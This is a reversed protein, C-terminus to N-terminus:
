GETERAFEALNLLAIEQVGIKQQSLNKFDPLDKTTIKRVTVASLFPLSKKQGLNKLAEGFLGLQASGGCLLIKGPLGNGSIKELIIEAGALWLEMGQKFSKEIKRHQTPNKTKGHSYAIKLNEAEALSLHLDDALLRTFNKGGLSFTEIAVCEGNQVLAIDTASGGIDFIVASFDEGGVAGFARATAFPKCVLMHLEQELREALASLASYHALPVFASFCALTVYHGKFGLPNIIHAGDIKAGAVSSNVLKIELDEYGSNEALEKQALVSADKQMKNLMIELEDLSLAEKPNARIFEETLFVTKILEGSIGFVARATKQKTAKEAEYIAERSSALVVDINTIAGGRTSYVSRKSKGFGHLALLNKKSSFILAKVATAGIDLALLPESPNLKKSWFM